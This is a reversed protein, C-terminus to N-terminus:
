KITKSMRCLEIRNRYLRSVQTWTDLPKSMNCCIRFKKQNWKYPIRWTYPTKMLGLLQRYHFFLTFDKHSYLCIPGYINTQSTKIITETSSKLWHQLKTKLHHCFEGIYVCMYICMYLNNVSKCFVTM